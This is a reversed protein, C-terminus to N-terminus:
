LPSDIDEGVIRARTFFRLVEADGHGGIGAGYWFAQTSRDSMDLLSTGNIKVEGAPLQAGVRQGESINRTFVYAALGNALEYCEDIAQTVDDITRIVLVPGFTEDRALEAPPDIILTPAIWRGYTPTTEVSVVEARADAFEHIRHRLTSYQAPNAQPGFNANEDLPEGIRLEALGSLIEHKLEVRLASPVFVTGPSECWAGNLKTMGAALASATPPVNADALVIAPNNSGM